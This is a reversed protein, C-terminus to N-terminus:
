GGVLAFMDFMFRATHRFGARGFLGVNISVIAKYVKLGSTPVM